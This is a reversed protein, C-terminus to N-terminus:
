NTKTLFAYITFKDSPERISKILDINLNTKKALFLLSKKSFVHLHDIHFEERNKGKKAALIDPVEIYIIGKKKLIARAKILMREPQEVHEIVKNLTIVDYKKKIKIKIFDGHISNIKLENKLHMWSLKNPDLATCTFGKKSIMYPFIGLGSGIDLLTKNKGKMKKKVFNAVRSVRSYNDSKKKPLKKIVEFNKKLNNSYIARNYESSYLNKIKIKSIGFYHQCFNCQLYYRYYNKTDISYLTEGKPPKLYEFKKSFKNKECFFCKKM